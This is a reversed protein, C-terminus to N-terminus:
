MATPWSSGIADGLEDAPDRGAAALRAAREDAALRGLVRAQHVVVREVQRAAADADDLAGVDDVARRDAGAVDDEAQRRGPEM